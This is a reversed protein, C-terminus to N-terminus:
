NTKKLYWKKQWFYYRKEFFYCSSQTLSKKPRNEAKEPYFITILAFSFIHLMCRYISKWIAIFQSYIPFVTIFIYNVSVISNDLKQSSMNRKLDFHHKMDIDNNARSNNCNKNIQSKMMFRSISFIGLLQPTSCTLHVLNIM